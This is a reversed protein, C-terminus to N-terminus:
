RKLDKAFHNHNKLLDYSMKYWASERHNNELISVYKIAENKLGLMMYSETMRYLAEQIHATTQYNKLVVDFRGIAAIPNNQNLYFRGIVMESAALTDNILDLKLNADIAYKTGPFRRIVEEFAAKAQETKSQDTSPSSIQMYYTMGRLYYAYAIDEHLPHLKIFIELVDSAEDYEKELYLSYAEMLEAQATIASGPHQFYIAAFAESAKKYKKESLFTLGNNYSEEAPIIIDDKNKTSKCGSLILPIFCLACFLYLARMIM